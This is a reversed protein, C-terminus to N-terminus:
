FYGEQLAILLQEVQKLGEDTAMAQVPTQGHLSQKPTNLWRQAKEEDGFIALALAIGKDNNM